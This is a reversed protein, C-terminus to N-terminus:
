DNTVEYYPSPKTISIIGISTGAVTISARTEKTEDWFAVTELLRTYFGDESEVADPGSGDYYYYNVLAKLAELIIEKTPAVDFYSIWNIGRAPNKITGPLGIEVCWLDRERLKM